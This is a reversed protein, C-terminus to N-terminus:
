VAEQLGTGGGQEIASREEFVRLLTSSNVSATQVVDAILKKADQRYIASVLEELGRRVDAVGEIYRVEAGVDDNGFFNSEQRGSVRARVFHDKADSGVHETTIIVPYNPRIIAIKAGFSYANGLSFDKDKLEFLVLEGSVNALFDIEDGGVNQEILLASSPIEMRAFERQLLLTLWRAKDLLKRALDTVTLAEEIKEDAIRRGCACKVGQDALVAICPRSPLRAIQAQTKSCVVVVEADLLKAEKLRATFEEISNKSDAPLQKQADRVLLGGSAKIATLFTRTSRDSLIAVAKDEDDTPPVPSERGEAKLEDFRSLGYNYRELDRGYVSRVAEVAAALAESTLSLSVANVNLVFPADAISEGQSDNVTRRTRVRRPQDTKRLSVALLTHEDAYLEGRVVPSPQELM